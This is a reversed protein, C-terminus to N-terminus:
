GIETLVTLIKFVVYIDFRIDTKWFISVNKFWWEGVNVEGAPKIKRKYETKEPKVANMEPIQYKKQKKIKKM